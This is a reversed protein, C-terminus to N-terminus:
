STEKAAVPVAGIQYALDKLLQASRMTKPHPKLRETLVLAHRWDRAYEDLWASVRAHGPGSSLSLQKLILFGWNGRECLHLQDVVHDAEAILEWALDLDAVILADFLDRTAETEVPPPTSADRYRALLERGKAVPDPM